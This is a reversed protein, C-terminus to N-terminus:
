SIRVDFWEELQHDKVIIDLPHVDLLLFVYLVCVCARARARARVRVCMCVIM